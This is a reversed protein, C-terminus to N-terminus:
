LHPVLKSLNLGYLICKYIEKMQERGLRNQFYNRKGMSNRTGLQILELRHFAVTYLMDGKVWSEYQQFYGLMPMSQKPLLYHFPQVPNPKVTSLPVITVLKTYGNLASSVVIVPRKNKVMEPEKFGESFNCLIIQGPKPYISIPM